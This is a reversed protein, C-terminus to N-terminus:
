RWIGIASRTTHYIRAIVRKIWMRGHLKELAELRVKMESMVDIAEKLQNAQQKIYQDYREIGNALSACNAESAWALLNNTSLASESKLALLGLDYATGYYIDSIGPEQPFEHNKRGQLYVAISAPFGAEEMYLRILEPNIPTQHTPDKYFSSSCVHLNAYNPTEMILLGGPRLARYAEHILSQIQVQSLHEIVHFASILDHSEAEMNILYALIDKKVVTFGNGRGAELMGENQDVGCCKLGLSSCVSLWEGRGCGLDIASAHPRTKVLEKILPEYVRLREIILSQPGRFRDELMRYIADFNM